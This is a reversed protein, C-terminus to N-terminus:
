LVSVPAFWGLEPLAFLVFLEPLRLVVLTSLPSALSPLSAPVPGLTDRDLEMGFLLLTKFEWLPIM